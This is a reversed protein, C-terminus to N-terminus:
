DLIIIDKVEDGFFSYGFHADPYMVAIDAIEPDNDYAPTYGLCDGIFPKRGDNFVVKVRHGIAAYGKKAFETM